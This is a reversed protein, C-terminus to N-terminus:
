VEVNDEDAETTQVTTNIEEVGSSEKEGRNKSGLLSKGM